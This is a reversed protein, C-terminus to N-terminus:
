VTAQPSAASTSIPGAPAAADLDDADGRRGIFYLAVSVPLYEALNALATPIAIRLLERLGGKTADPQARNAAADDHTQPQLLPM